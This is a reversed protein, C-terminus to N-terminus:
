PMDPRLLLRNSNRSNSGRYSVEVEVEEVETYLTYRSKLLHLCIFCNPDIYCLM